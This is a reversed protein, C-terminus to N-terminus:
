HITALKFLRHKDWIELPNQAPVTGAGPLSFQLIFEGQSVEQAPLWIDKGNKKKGNGRLCASIELPIGTHLVRYIMKNEKVNPEKDLLKFAHNGGMVSIRPLAFLKTAPGIVALADECVVATQFGAEQVAKITNRNYQGFPYCFALPKRIGHLKLQRLCEAIDPLPEGSAALNGHSHSHGGFVFTGRKRM